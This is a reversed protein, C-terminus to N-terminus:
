LVPIEVTLVHRDRHFRASCGDGDMRFPLFVDLIYGAKRAEMVMRDEGVDLTLERVTRVQRSFVYLLCTKSCPLERVEPMEITAVLREPKESDRPEKFIAYKPTRERPTEQQQPPPKPRVSPSPASAQPSALKTSVEQM